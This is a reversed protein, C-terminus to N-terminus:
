GNTVIKTLQFQVVRIRAIRPTYCAEACSQSHKYTACTQKGEQLTIDFSPVFEELLDLSVALSPILPQFNSLYKNHKRNAINVEPAIVHDRAWRTNVEVLKTM